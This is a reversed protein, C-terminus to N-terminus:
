AGEEEDHARLRAVYGTRRGVSRARTRLPMFGEILHEDVDLAPTGETDARPSRLWL